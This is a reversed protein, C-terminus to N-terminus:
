RGARTADVMARRTVATVADIEARARQHRQRARALEIERKRMPDLVLCWLLWLAIAGVVVYWYQIALIILLVIFLGAM